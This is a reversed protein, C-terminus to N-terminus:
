IQLKIQQSLGASSITDGLGVTHRPKKCVFVPAFYFKINLKLSSQTWKAVGGLDSYDNVRDKELLDIIKTNRHLDVLDLQSSLGDREISCAQETASLSSDALSGILAEENVQYDSRVALVHFTLCHFHLRKLPCNELIYSIAGVVSSLNPDTKSIDSISYLQDHSSRSPSSTLVKYLTSLEQENLGLSDTVPFIINSIEDYINQNGMSALEVHVIKLSSSINIKSERIRNAVAQLRERRYHEEKVGDLLHFGSLVLLHPKFAELKEHFANLSAFGANSEDRTVIFRNARPPSQGNWKSDKSYEMIVHFEDHADQNSFDINTYPSLLERMKPGIAGSLLVSWNEKSFKVGMLAANGGIHFFSKNILAESTGASVIQTFVTKDYVFREAGSGKSFFFGFSRALDDFTDIRTVDGNEEVNPVKYETNEKLMQNMLDIAPLILDVNSNYGIAVRLIEKKAAQDNRLKILARATHKPDHHDATLYITTFYAAICAIIATLLLYTRQTTSQATIPLKGPESM